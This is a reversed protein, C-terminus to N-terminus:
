LLLDEAMFESVVFESVMFDADVFDIRMAMESTNSSVAVAARACVAAWFDKSWSLDKVPVHSPFFVSPMATWTEKRSVAPPEAKILSIWPWPGSFMIEMNWRSPGLRRM